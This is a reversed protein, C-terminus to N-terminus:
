LGHYLLRRSNVHTAFTAPRDRRSNTLDFLSALYRKRYLWTTTAAVTLNGEGALRGAHELYLQLFM